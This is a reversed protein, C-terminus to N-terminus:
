VLWGGPFRRFGRCSGIGGITLSRERTLEDYDYMDDDIMM